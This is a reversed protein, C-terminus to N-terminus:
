AYGMIRIRQFNYTLEQGIYYWLGIASLVSYYGTDVDMVLYNIM